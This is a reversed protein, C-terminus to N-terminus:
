GCREVQHRLAEHKLKLQRAYRLLPPSEHDIGDVSHRLDVLSVIGHSQGLERGHIVRFPPLWRLPLYGFVWREVSVNRLSRSVVGFAAGVGVGIADRGALAALLSASGPPRSATSVRRLAAYASAPTASM